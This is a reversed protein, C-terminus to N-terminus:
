PRQSFRSLPLWPREPPSCCAEDSFLLQDSTLDIATPLDGELAM